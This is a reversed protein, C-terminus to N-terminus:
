IKNESNLIEKAQKRSIEKQHDKEVEAGIVMGFWLISIVIIFWSIAIDKPLIIDQGKALYIAISMGILTFSCNFLFRGLDRTSWMLKIQVEGM